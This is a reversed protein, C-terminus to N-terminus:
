LSFTASSISVRHARLKTLATSKRRLSRSTATTPSTSCCRKNRFDAEQQQESYTSTCPTPQISPVAEKQLLLKSCLGSMKAYYNEFDKEEFHDSCVHGCGPTWSKPDRKSVVFEIWKQRVKEDKPFQHFSAGNNNTNNCFMVVCRKGPERKRKGNGDNGNESAM